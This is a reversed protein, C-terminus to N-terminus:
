PDRGPLISSVGTRPLPARSRCPCESGPSADARRVTGSGAGRSPTAPPVDARAEAPPRGAPGEGPPLHVRGLFAHFRRWCARWFRPLGYGGARLVRRHGAFVV